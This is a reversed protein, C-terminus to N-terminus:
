DLDLDLDPQGAQEQQGSQQTPTRGQAQQNNQNQQETSALNNTDGSSRAGTNGSGGAAGGTTNTNNNSNNGGSMMTGITTFLSGFPFSGPMSSGEAIPPSRPLSPSAPNSQQRVPPRRANNQISDNSTNAQAQPDNGEQGPARPPEPQPM